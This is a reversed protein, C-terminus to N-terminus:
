LLTLAVVTVVGGTFAFAFLALLGDHAILSLGFATLAAGSLNASFPVVEILPTMMAIGICVISIVHTMASGTLAPIRRGTHRDVFRAPRRVWGVGKCLKERDISRKLLWGPLWFHERHVLLQVGVLLVLIGMLVPVGPIDGVLPIITILGALLLVPGFSRRGVVDLIEGVSVSEEDEAAEEIRDLLQELTQIEEADPDTSMEYKTRDAHTITEEMM